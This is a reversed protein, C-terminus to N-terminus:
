TEEDIHDDPIDDFLKKGEPDIYNDAFEQQPDKNKEALDQEKIAIERMRRNELKEAMIKDFKPPVKLM